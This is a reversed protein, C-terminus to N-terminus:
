FSTAMFSDVRHYSQADYGTFHESLLYLSTLLKRLYLNICNELFPFLPIMHSAPVPPISAKSKRSPCRVVIWSWTLELNEQNAADCSLVDIRLAHARCMESQKILAFLYRLAVRLYIHNKLDTFLENAILQQICVKSRQPGKKDTVLPETCWVSARVCEHLCACCAM